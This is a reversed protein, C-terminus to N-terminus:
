RVLAAILSIALGFCFVFFPLMLVLVTAEGARTHGTATEIGFLRFRHWSLASSGNDGSTKVFLIPVAFFAALFAFIAGYSVLMNTRFSTALVGIAGAFLLGMTVYIRSPLGFNHDECARGELAAPPAVIESRALLQQQHLRSTM